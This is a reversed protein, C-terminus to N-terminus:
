LGWGQSKVEQQECMCAQSTWAVNVLILFYDRVAETELWWRQIGPLQIGQQSTLTGLFCAVSVKWCM